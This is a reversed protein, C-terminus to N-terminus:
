RRLPMWATGKSADLPIPPGALMAEFGQRGDSTPAFRLEVDIVHSCQLMAWREVWVQPENTTMVRTDVVGSFAQSCRAAAPLVSQALPIVTSLVDGALLADARTSGPTIARLAPGEGRARLDTEIVVINQDQSLGCGATTVREILSRGVKARDYDAGLVIAPEVWGVFTPRSANISACAPLHARHSLRATEQLAEVYADRGIGNLMDRPLRSADAPAWLGALLAVALVPGVLTKRFARRAEPLPHLAPQNISPVHYVSAVEGHRPRRQGSISIM